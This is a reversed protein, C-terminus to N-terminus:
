PPPTWSHARKKTSAAASISSTSAIKRHRGLQESGTHKQLSILQAGEVEALPAFEVLPISRFKDLSYATNGQWIIGVQFGPIDACGDAGHKSCGRIPPWIPCRPPVTDLTTGMIGPLSMLPAHLDFHGAAAYRGPHRRSLGLSQAAAGAGAAGRDDPPRGAARGAERLSHIAAHRGLRAGCPDLAHAWCAAFRGLGARHVQTGQVGQLAVAVRLGEVRGRLRRPESPRVLSQLVGRCLRAQHPHGRCIRGPTTSATNFTFRPPWTFTPMTSTPTSRWRPPSLRHGRGDRGADAVGLRRQGVRRGIRAILELAKQFEEMAQEPQKQDQYVTGLNNHAESFDPRLALAQRYCDAAADYDKKEHLVSGLNNLAEAFDGRAALALRLSQEAADFQELSRFCCGLNNQAEAHRPDRVVAAQLAQVAEELRGQSQLLSGLRFYADVNQPDIELVTRLAAEAEGTKAQQTRVAALSTAAKLYRPRAALAAAYSEEAAALDDADRLLNGLNFHAESFKPNLQVTRRYGAVAEAVKGQLALLAALNYHVQADNPSLAMARGFAAEAREYDALAGYVAGLHNYYAPNDDQIAIARNISTPPRPM